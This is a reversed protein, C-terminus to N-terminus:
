VVKYKKITNYEPRYYSIPFVEEFEIPDDKITNYMDKYLGIIDCLTRQRRFCRMSSVWTKIHIAEHLWLNERSVVFDNRYTSLRVLRAFGINTRINYKKIPEQKKNPAKSFYSTLWM